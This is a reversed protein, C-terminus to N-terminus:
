FVTKLFYYTMVLCLVLKLGSGTVFGIFAGAAAKVAHETNKGAILEGALAGIIPGFIIGFPPFIFIGFVLGIVSGWIGYKSANFKRAGYIPIVYDLLTVFVTLIAFIILLRPSLNYRSTVHLLLLAIYGLPPGPLVPLLCGVIGFIMCVAGAAILLTDTMHRDYLIPSIILEQQPYIYSRIGPKLV